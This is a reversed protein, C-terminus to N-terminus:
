LKKGTRDQIRGKQDRGKQDRGKQDRGTRNQHDRGKQDRGKQDRGSRDQKRIRKRPTFELIDDLESEQKLNEEQNSNSEYQEQYYKEELTKRHNEEVDYERDHQDQYYKEELTKRYEDEVDCERDYQDQYYQDERRKEETLYIFLGRQLRLQEFEQESLYYENHLHSQILLQQHHIEEEYELNFSEQQIDQLYLSYQYNLYEGDYDDFIEDDFVQTTM